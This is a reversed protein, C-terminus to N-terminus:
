AYTNRPKIPITDGSERLSWIYLGSGGRLVNVVLASSSYLAKMHARAGYFECGKGRAYESRTDPHLEGGFVNAEVTRTYAEVPVSAQAAWTLQCSVIYDATRRKM